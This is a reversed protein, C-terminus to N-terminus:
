RWPALSPSSPSGSTPRGNIVAINQVAQLPSLGIEAGLQLALFINEPKGRYEQPVLTSKAIMNAFQVAEAFTHPTLATDRTPAIRVLPGQPDTDNM